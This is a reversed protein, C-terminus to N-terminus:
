VLREAAFASRSMELVFDILAFTYPLSGALWISWSRAPLERM